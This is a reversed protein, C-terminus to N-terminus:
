IQTESRWCVHFCLVSVVSSPHVCRRCKIACAAGKGLQSRRFAAQAETDRNAKKLYVLSGPPTEEGGATGEREGGRAPNSAERTKKEKEIPARIPVHTM